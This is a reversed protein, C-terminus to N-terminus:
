QSVGKVDCVADVIKAFGTCRCINGVLYDRVTGRSRCAAEPIGVASMVFGTTCFGCQVAGHRAFAEVVTAGAPEDRVGEVTTITADVCDGVVMCCAHVPRGDLLVTCAGCYGVACGVKTGTLGCHERLVEALTAFPSADVEYSEGNVRLHVSM